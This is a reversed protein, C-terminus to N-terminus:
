IWSIYAQMSCFILHAYTTFLRVHIDVIVPLRPSESSAWQEM